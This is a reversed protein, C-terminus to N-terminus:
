RGQSILVCLYRLAPEQAPWSALASASVLTEAVAVVEHQNMLLLPGIQFDQADLRRLTQGRLPRGHAVDALAPPDLVLRPFQPLARDISFLAVHPLAELLSADEVKQPGVTLRRLASLHAPVGLQEGIQVALSRIYTGKSVHAEVELTTATRSLLRLAFIQVTRTPTAVVEGRRAKQYAREGDLKVASFAPVTQPISGTLDQLARAIRADDLDPIPAELVTDGEADYTTTSRGLTITARYSKDASELFRGIRTAKGLTVLMLGTAMPDLTGTHGVDRQRFARRVHAVVDHSTPGKPKDVLLVGDM